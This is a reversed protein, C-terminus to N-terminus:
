KIGVKRNHPQFTSQTSRIRIGLFVASYESYGISLLFRINAVEVIYRFYFYFFLTLNVINLCSTDNNYIKALVFGGHIAM